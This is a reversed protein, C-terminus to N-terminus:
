DIQVKVKTKGTTRPKPHPKAAEAPASADAAAPENAPTTAPLTARTAEEVRKVARGLEVNLAEGLVQFGKQFERAADSGHQKFPEPFLSEVAKNAADLARRQHYVFQDFASNAETTETPTKNETDSM